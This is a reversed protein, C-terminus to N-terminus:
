ISETIFKEMPESFWNKDRMHKKFTEDWEVTAISYFERDQEQSFHFTIWGPMANVRVEIMRGRHPSVFQKTKM